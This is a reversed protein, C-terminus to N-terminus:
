ADLLEVLKPVVTNLDGVIRYHAMRFIPAGADSNIAVITKADRIGVSHQVAGSIGCAVYLSPKVTVGTQGIQREASAWGADVSARTAGIEGSLKQALTELLQFNEKTGVGAGGGIITEADKLNVTKQVVERTEIKARLSEDSAQMNFVSVAGVKAGESQVETIGDKLTVFTPGEGKTSYKVRARADFETRLFTPKSASFDVGDCDVVCAAGLKGAALPALDNGVTSAPLLVLLPQREKALSSLAEAMPGSLYHEFADGELTFVENAGQALVQQARDALNTGAIFAEVRLNREAAMEKALALGQFSLDSIGDADHQIYILINSM